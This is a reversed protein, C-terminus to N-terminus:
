REEFPNILALDLGEFDRVNRTALAAGHSLCIAAIQADQVSIARGAAERKARIRGAVASGESDLSLIKGAFRKGVLYETADLLHVSGSRLHIREAGFWMEMVSTSSLFHESQNEYRLWALVSADMNRKLLESVINTDLVIM